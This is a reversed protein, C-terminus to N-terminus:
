GDVCADNGEEAEGLSCPGFRTPWTNKMYTLNKHKRFVAEAAFCHREGGYRRDWSRWGACGSASTSGDSGYGAVGRWCAERLRRV